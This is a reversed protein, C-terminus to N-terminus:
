NMVASITDPQAPISLDEIVEEGQQDVAKEVKNTFVIWYGLLFVAVIIAITTWIRSSNKSM